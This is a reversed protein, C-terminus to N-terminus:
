DEKFKVIWQDKDAWSGRSAFFSGVVGPFTANLRDRPMTMQYEFLEKSSVPEADGLEFTEGTKANEMVINKAAIAYQGRDLTKYVATAKFGKEHTLTSGVDAASIARKM